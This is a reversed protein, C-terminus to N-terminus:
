VDTYCLINIYCMLIANCTDACLLMVTVAGNCKKTYCQYSYCWSYVAANCRYIANCM